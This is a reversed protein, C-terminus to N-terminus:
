MALLELVIGAINCRLIEPMTQKSFTEYADETYLRYCVGPAERGARGTRQCAQSKSVVGVKLMDIGRTPDYVRSKVKGSDIILRIGPITLSTEAINTAIIVKRTDPYDQFVKLQTQPSMASYFPLLTIKKGAVPLENMVDRCKRVAQEIEDQGTLFALIGQEIPEFQHLQFIAVITDHIYDSSEKATFFLKVPYQRGEVYVVPARNFYESFKDVNMTASMIIIRLDAMRKEKRIEQAAKVIAFM